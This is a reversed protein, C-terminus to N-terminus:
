LHSLRIALQQEALEERLFQLVEDDTLEPRRNILGWISAYVPRRLAPHANCEENVALLRAYLAAWTPALADRWKAALYNPIPPLTSAKM